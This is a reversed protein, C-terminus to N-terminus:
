FLRSKFSEPGDGTMTGFAAFIRNYGQKVTKQPQGPNIGVICAFNIM